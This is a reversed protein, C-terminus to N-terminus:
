PCLPTVIRRNRQRLGLRFVISPMVLAFFRKLLATPMVAILRGKRAGPFKLRRISRRIPQQLSGIFNKRNRLLFFLPFVGQNEDRISSNKSPSNAQVLGSFTLRFIRGCESFHGVKHSVFGAMQVNKTNSRFAERNFKRFREQHIYRYGSVLHCFTTGMGCSRAPLM